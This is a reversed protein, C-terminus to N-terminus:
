EREEVNDNEKMYEDYVAEICEYETEGRGEAYREYARNALDAIQKDTLNYVDFDSKLTDYMFNTVFEKHAKSLDVELEIEQITWTYSTGLPYANDYLFADHENIWSSGMDTENTKHVDYAKQMAAKAEDETRYLTADIGYGNSGILQYAKVTM